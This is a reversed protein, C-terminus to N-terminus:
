RIRELLMHAEGAAGFKRLVAAPAFGVDMAWRVQATRYPASAALRLAGAADWLVGADHFALDVDACRVICEIRQLDSAGIVVDRVFRTMQLHRRAGIGRGLFAWGVGCAGAFTENVGFCALVQDGDLAAWCNEQAAQAEAEAREIARPDLGYQRLQSDQLDVAFLHQARLPVFRLEPM